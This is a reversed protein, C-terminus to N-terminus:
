FIVLFSLVINGVSTLGSAPQEGNTAKITYSVNEFNEFLNHTELSSNSDTSTDTSFVVSILTALLLIQIRMFRQM